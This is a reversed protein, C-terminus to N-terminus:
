RPVAQLDGFVCRGALRSCRGEFAHQQRRGKRTTFAFMPVIDPADNPVRTWGLSDLLCLGARHVKSVPAGLEPTTAHRGVWYFKGTTPVMSVTSAPLLKITTSPHTVPLPKAQAHTIACTLGCTCAPTSTPALARAHMHQLCCLSLCNIDITQQRDLQARGKCFASTACITRCAHRHAPRCHPPVSM